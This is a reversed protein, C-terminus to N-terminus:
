GQAQPLLYLVHNQISHATAKSMVGFSTKAEKIFYSQVLDIQLMKGVKLRSSRRISSSDSTVSAVEALRSEGTATSM